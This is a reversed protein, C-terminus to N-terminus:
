RCHGHLWTLVFRLVPGIEFSSSQAHVDDPADCNLCFKTDVLRWFKFLYIFNCIWTPSPRIYLLSSKESPKIALLSQCVRKQPSLSYRFFRSQANAGYEIFIPKINFLAFSFCRLNVHDSPVTSHLDTAPVVVRWGANSRHSPCPNKSPPLPCAALYFWPNRM